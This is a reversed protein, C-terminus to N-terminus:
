KIVPLEYEKIGKVLKVGKWDEEERAVVLRNEPDLLLSIM